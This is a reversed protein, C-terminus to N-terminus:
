QKGSSVTIARYTEGGGSLKVVINSTVRPKWKCKADEKLFTLIEEPRGYPFLQPGVVVFRDLCQSRAFLKLLAQKAEVNFGHWVATVILGTDEGVTSDSFEEPFCNALMAEISDQSKPLRSVDVNCKLGARQGEGIVGVGRLKEVMSDFKGVLADGAVEVGYAASAGHALAALLVKGDAAGIDIVRRGACQLQEFLSALSNKTLAGYLGDGDHGLGPQYRQYMSMASKHRDSHTLEAAPGAAPKRKKRVGGRRPGGRKRSPMHNSIM